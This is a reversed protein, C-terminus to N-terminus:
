LLVPQCLHQGALLVLRGVGIILISFGFLHRSISAQKINRLEIGHFSRVASLWVSNVSVQKFGLRLYRLFSPISSFGKSSSM